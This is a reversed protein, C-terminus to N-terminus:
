GHYFRKVLVIEDGWSPAARHHCLGEPVPTDEFLAKGIVPVPELVGMRAVM